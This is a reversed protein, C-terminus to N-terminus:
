EKQKQIVGFAGSQNTAVNRKDRKEIEEMVERRKRRKRRGRQVEIIVNRKGDGRRLYQNHVHHHSV